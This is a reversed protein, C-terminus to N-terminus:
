SFLKIDAAVVGTIHGNNMMPVSITLCYDESAESLYIPSVYVGRNRVAGQFWPRSDWSRGLASGGGSSKFSASAINETVQVGHGDTVYVLELFAHEAVMRQMLQEMRSRDLSLMDPSAALSEVLEQAEGKGILQFVGSLKVLEEVQSTLREVASSAREMGQATRESVERVQDVSRRVEEGVASQEEAAAAIARIQDTTRDVLSVIGELSKGSEAGLGSAVDVAEAASEMEQVSAGIDDQITRVVQGVEGTAHMTKEALKRVEDAVVAFGRGAEGARAAEIAANLALLNTQDAIDSIVGMVKGISQAREGLGAIRAKLAQTRTRVSEISEVARAVVDAGQGARERTQGAVTSTESANRSVEIVAAAVEDMAQATRAVQDRQVAAGEDVQAVEEALASSADKLTRTVEELTKAASVMGERRVRDSQGARNADERAVRAEEAGRECRAVLDRCGAREAELRELVLAVGQELGAERPFDEGLARRVSDLLARAPVDLKARAWAWALVGAIVSAGAGAMALWLAGTSGESVVFFLAVLVATAAFGSFVGMLGLSAAVQRVM